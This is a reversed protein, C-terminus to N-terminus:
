AHRCLLLLTENVAVTVPLSPKWRAALLLVVDLTDMQRHTLGPAGFGLDVLTDQNQGVAM